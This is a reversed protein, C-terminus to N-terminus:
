NPGFATSEATSGDLTRLYVSLILGKRDVLMAGGGILGVSQAARKEIARKLWFSFRVALLWFKVKLRFWFGFMLAAQKIVRDTTPDRRRDSKRADDLILVILPTHVVQRPTKWGWKELTLLFSTIM